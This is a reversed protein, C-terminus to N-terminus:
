IICFDVNTTYPQIPPLPYSFLSKGTKPNDKLMHIFSTLATKYDEVFSKDTIRQIFGFDFILAKDEFKKSDRGDKGYRHTLVLFTWSHKKNLKYLIYIYFSM